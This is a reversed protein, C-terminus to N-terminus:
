TCAGPVQHTRPMPQRFHQQPVADYAVARRERHRGGGVATIAEIARVGGHGGVATYGQPSGAPPREGDNLGDAILHETETSARRGDGVPEGGFAHEADVRRASASSVAAPVGTANVTDANRM